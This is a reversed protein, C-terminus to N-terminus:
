MQPCRMDRRILYSDASVKFGVLYETDGIALGSQTQEAANRAAPPQAVREALVPTELLGVGVGEPQDGGVEAM